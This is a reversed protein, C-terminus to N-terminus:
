KGRESKDSTQCCRKKNKPHNKFVWLISGDKRYVIKNSEELYDLIVTITPYTVKRSVELFADQPETEMM